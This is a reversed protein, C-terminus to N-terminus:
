IPAGDAAVSVSDINEASPTSSIEVDRGPNEYSIMMGEIELQYINVFDQVSLDEEGLMAPADVCNWLGAEPWTMWWRDSRSTDEDAGGVSGSGGGAEKFLCLECNPGAVGQLRLTEPEPWPYSTIVRSLGLELRCAGENFSGRWVRACEGDGGEAAAVFAGGGYGPSVYLRGGKLKRGMVGEEQRNGDEPSELPCRCALNKDRLSQISVVPGNGGPTEDTAGLLMLIYLGELDAPPKPLNPSFTSTTSAGAGILLGDVIPHEVHARWGGASGTVPDNGVTAARGTGATQKHDAHTYLLVTYRTFLAFSGWRADAGFVGGDWCDGDSDRDALEGPLFSLRRNNAGAEAGVCKGGDLTEVGTLADRWTIALDLGGDPDATCAVGAVDPGSHRRVCAKILGHDNNVLTIETTSSPPTSRTTADASGPSALACGASIIAALSVVHLSLDSDYLAVFGPGAALGHILYREATPEPTLGPPRRGSVAGGVREGLGGAAFVEFGPGMAATLPPGDPSAERLLSEESFTPTPLAGGTSSPSRSSPAASIGDDGGAKTACGGRSCSGTVVHYSSVALDAASTSTSSGEQGKCWCLFSGDQDELSVGGKGGGIKGPASAAPRWVHRWARRSGLDKRTGSGGNERGAAAKSAWSSSLSSTPAAAAAEAATTPLFLAIRGDWCALAFTSSDDPSFSLSTARAIPLAKGWLAALDAFREAEPPSRMASLAEEFGKHKGGRGGRAGSDRRSRAKTSRHPPPPAPRHRILEVVEWVKVHGTMAVAALFSSDQSFALTVVPYGQFIKAVARCTATPTEARRRGDDPKPYHKQEGEGADETCQSVELAHCEVGFTGGVAILYTRKSCGRTSSNKGKLGSSASNCAAAGVAAAASTTSDLSCCAVVKGEFGNSGTHIKTLGMSPAVRNTPTRTDDEEGSRCSGVRDEVPSRPPSLLLAHLRRRLDTAM